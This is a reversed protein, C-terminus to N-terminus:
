KQYHELQAHPHKCKHPMSNPLFLHFHYQDQQTLHTNSLQFQNKDKKFKLQVLLQEEVAQLLRM